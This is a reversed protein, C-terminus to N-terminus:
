ETIPDFSTFKVEFAPRLDDFMETTKMHQALHEDHIWLTVQIVSPNQHVVAEGVAVNRFYVVVTTM